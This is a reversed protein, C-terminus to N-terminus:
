QSIEETYGYNHSLNQIVNELISIVMLGFCALTIIPDALTPTIEECLIAWSTRKNM